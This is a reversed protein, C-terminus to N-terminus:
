TKSWSLGLRFADSQYQDIQQHTLEIISPLETTHFNNQIQKKYWLVTHKIATTFDWVPAWGLMDYAKDTCLHLLKAEHVAKPDSKDVWQGEWHKLVETVVELVTRNADHNPGFNFASCFDNSTFRHNIVSSHVKNSNCKCESERSKSESLLAALLLYGSLPELVHQWPRTATKNRVPISQKNKLARICDPIIRDLAWDGGGIVNGARASAIQVKHNKFFSQRYSQIAIECAAKSSSYPDFGGLPDTERYGYLWERNQYCKDTTIFLASCPKELNRLADLVHVAGMVNTSYTEVPEAYSYRVLPQAALHFVFDPQSEIISQQVCKIDRIDGVQHRIDGILNLQEFLSPQTPPPLSYGVVRAGLRLLWATLWSGKFGTHGSIWVTKQHYANYFM